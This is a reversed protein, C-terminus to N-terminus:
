PRHSFHGPLKAAAVVEYFPYALRDNAHFRQLPPHLKFGRIGHAILRDAESVADFGRTPDVSAFALMIDANDAALGAVQDNPVQPRGSRLNMSPLLRTERPPVTRPPDVPVLRKRESSQSGSTSWLRFTGNCNM